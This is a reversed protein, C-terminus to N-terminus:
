RLFCPNKPRNRIQFRNRPLGSVRFGNTGVPFGPGFFIGRLGHPYNVILPSISRGIWQNFFGRLVTPGCIRLRRMAAPRLWASSAPRQLIRPQSILRSVRALISDWTRHTASKSSMWRELARPVSGLVRSCNERSSYASGRVFDNAVADPQNSHTSVQSSRYNRIRFM